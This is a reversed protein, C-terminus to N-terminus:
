RLLGKLRDQLKEKARDELARRLRSRLFARDIEVRPSALPGRMRLRIYLRGDKEVLHRLSPTRAVMSETVAPSFRGDIDFDITADLGFSGEGDLDLDESRLALNKTRARGEGVQFDGTVSRYPTHDRGIGKGGAVELLTAVQRLISVSQVRGDRLDLKTAGGLASALEASSLGAGRLALTGTFRGTLVGKLDPRLAPLAGELDVGRVGAELDFPLRDKGLTLAGSGRVEGGYLSAGLSRLALRGRELAAEAKGNSFEMGLLRGSDITLRLTGRAAPLPASSPPAARPHASAPAPASLLALARDLDLRRSRLEGSLEPERGARWTLDGELVDEGLRLRLPSLRATPGELSLTADARLSRARAGSGVQLVLDSLDLRGSAVMGPVIQAPSAGGRPPDAGRVELSGGFTGSRLSPPLVQGALAGLIRAPEVGLAEIRLRVRAGSPESPPVVGELSLTGEGERGLAAGLSFKWPHSAGGPELSARVPGLTWGERLPAPGSPDIFTIRADRLDIRDVPIAAAPSGGAAGRAPAATGMGVEPRWQGDPGRRLRLRLGEAALSSLRVEGGLLPWLRLGLRLRDVELPRTGDRAGAQIGGVQISRAEARIGPAPVLRLSGIRVPAGLAASAQAEIGPRFREASVLFPVAALAALAVAVLSAVVGLAIRAPRRM